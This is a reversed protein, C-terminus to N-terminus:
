ATVNKYVNQLNEEKMSRIGRFKCFVDEREFSDYKKKIKANDFVTRNEGALLIVFKPFVVCIGTGWGADYM